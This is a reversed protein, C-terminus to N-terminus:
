ARDGAQVYLLKPLSGAESLEFEQLSDGATETGYVGVFANSQGLYATAVQRGTAGEVDVTVPTLHLSEVAQRAALREAPLRAPDGSVYIRLRQDPTRILDPSQSM